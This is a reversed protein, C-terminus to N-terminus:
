GGKESHYAEFFQRVDLFAGLTGDSMMPIARYEDVVWDVISPGPAGCEGDKGARGAEGDRGRDGRKGKGALMTWGDGIRGDLELAGPDDSLALWSSGNLMVFDGAAYDAV